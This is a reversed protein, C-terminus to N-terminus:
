LAFKGDLNPGPSFKKQISWKTTGKSGSHGIYQDYMCGSHGIHRDYAYMELYCNKVSYIFLYINIEATLGIIHSTQSNITKGMDVVHCAQLSGVFHSLNRQIILSCNIFQFFAM